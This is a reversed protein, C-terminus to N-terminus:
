GLMNQYSSITKTTCLTQVSTVQPNKLWWIETSCSTITVHESKMVKFSMYINRTGTTIFGGYTIWSIHCQTGTTPKGGTYRPPRPNFDSGVSQSDQDNNGTVVSIRWTVPLINGKLWSVTEEVEKRKWESITRGSLAALIYGSSRITDNFLNCILFYFWNDHHKNTFTISAIFYYLGQSM